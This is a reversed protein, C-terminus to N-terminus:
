ELFQRNENITEMKYELYQLRKKVEKESQLLENYERNRMFLEEELQRM